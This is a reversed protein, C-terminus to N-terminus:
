NSDIAWSVEMETSLTEVGAEVSMSASSPAAIGNARFMPQAPKDAGPREILLVRGLKVGAVSAVMQARRQANKVAEAALRDLIPEPREISFAIGDFQNAGKDIFSQALGGAKALDRTRIAVVNSAEYGRPTRRGDRSEDFTQTLTVSRTAIDASGVGAAKAAEVISRATADVQAIADKASQTEKTVGITITALDPAVESSATGVITIHPTDDIANSDDDQALAPFATAVLISMAFPILIKLDHM